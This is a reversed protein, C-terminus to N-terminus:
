LHHEAVLPAVATLLRHVVVPVDGRSAGVLSFGVWCCLGLVALLSNFFFFNFYTICFDSFNMVYIIFCYFAKQNKYCSIFDQFYPFLLPRQFEAHFRFDFQTYGAKKNSFSRVQNLHNLFISCYKGIYLFYLM